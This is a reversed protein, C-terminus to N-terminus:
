NKRKCDRTSIYCEKEWFSGNRGYVKKLGDHRKLLEITSFSKMTRVIDIPATTPSVSVVFNVCNSVIKIERIEYNNKQAILKLIEILSEELSRSQLDVENKIYFEIYYELCCRIEEQFNKNKKM